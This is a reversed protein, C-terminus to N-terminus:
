LSKAKTMCTKYRRNVRTAFWETTLKRTIKPSHLRIRPLTARPLPRGNRKDAIEFVRQYLASREFDHRRSGTLARRIQGEDMGLDNAMRRVAAETAGIKGDRAQKRGPMPDGDLDLAVGTAVAVANQFAANRSAYRGANYDAFRFLPNDYSAPYDLLHAIGFYMGGRRTFVEHRISSDIPHPYDRQAAHAEAFAISVQMPGGTRVPNARALLRKGLPIKAIMQEFLDSLEKETRVAAIRTEWSRGDPSTTKLAARVLLPPIKYRAARTEIEKLAITGLGPVPPNANYGSEQETVALVSCLHETSPAIELTALATQIDLAWGARDDVSAPMLRAIRARVQEPTPRNDACAALLVLTMGLILRLWSPRGTRPAAFHPM